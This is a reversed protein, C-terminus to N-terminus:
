KPNPGADAPQKRQPFGVIKGSPSTTDKSHLNSSGRNSDTRHVSDLYAAKAIQVDISSPAFTTAQAHQLNFRLSSVVGQPNCPTPFHFRWLRNDDTEHESQCTIQTVAGQDCQYFETVNANQVAFRTPSKRQPPM